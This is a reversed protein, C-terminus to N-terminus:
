AKMNKLFDILWHIASRVVSPPLEELHDLFTAQGIKTPLVLNIAGGRHRMTEQLAELCLQETLLPSFCPLRANVFAALIRHCSDNDLIGLLTAVVCTFAMDVAVAEGHAIEYGSAAELLPSVAHGFDVLRRYTQDEYINPELQNLMGQISRRLIERSPQPPDVFGSDLLCSAYNEVLVFLEQDCVLAVKIIEALGCSLYRSPLTPLFAPDILASEPPYFCGLYNKKGQFHVAGKVGIGADIQGILTTPIRIHNIGRRIWSAAMTVMDTCVGGGFGILVATRDLGHKNAEACIKEVQELTKTPEKCDLILEPIDLGANRLRGRLTHGYLKAVTPTTVLLARRHRIVDILLGFRRGFLGEVLQVHYSRQSHAQVSRAYSSTIDNDLAESM